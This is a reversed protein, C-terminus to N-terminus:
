ARASGSGLMLRRDAIALRAQDLALTFAALAREEVARTQVDRITMTVIQDAEMQLEDLAQQSEAARATHMLEILRKILKVREARTNTRLYGALGAAASGCFSVLIIGWYLLDNYRDFFTKQEGDIYAAAGPHAPVAADKDTSPTEFKDLAPLDATLAQRAGFLLRAFDAVKDESLNKHAVIYHMFGITEISEAPKPPAAGFTGAPIEVSEFAPFKKELADAQDIALFTPVEKGNSAAAVVDAIVRGTLPAAVLIADVKGDRIAPAVEQPLLTVIQVKDAPIEYQRLIVNLIEVNADTRTVIGVRRGALQMVKEIKARGAKKGDKPAQAAAAPVILVVLNHRLIAVAQGNKPIGLDGRVVALDATGRDVAAASESPGDASVIIRLRISARERALNQALAQVLRLNDGGAPGVAITLTTPQYLSYALAAGIGALLLVGAIVSLRWGQLIRAARRDVSGDTELKKM